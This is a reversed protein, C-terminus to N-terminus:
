MRWQFVYPQPPAQAGSPYRPFPPDFNGRATAKKAKIEGFDDAIASGNGTM